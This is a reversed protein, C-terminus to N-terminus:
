TNNLRACREISELLIGCQSLTNKLVDDKSGYSCNRLSRYNNEFREILEPSIDKIAVLATKLEGLLNKAAIVQKALFDTLNDCQIANFVKEEISDDISFLLNIVASERALEAIFLQKAENENEAKITECKEDYYRTKYKWNFRLCYTTKKKAM